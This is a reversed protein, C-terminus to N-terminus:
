VASASGAREDDPNLLRGTFAKAGLVPLYSGSVLEGMVRVPWEGGALTGEIRVFAALDVGRKLRDRLETYDPYSLTQYQPAAPRSNYITVLEHGRAGQSSRLFAQDVVGLAITCVGVAVGLTLIAIATSTRSKLLFRAAVRLDQLM